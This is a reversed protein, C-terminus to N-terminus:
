LEGKLKEIQNKLAEAVIYDEREAAQEKQVELEAIKEKIKIKSFHKSSIKGVHNITGQKRIIMNRIESEFIKYCNACGVVGDRTVDFISSKCKPCIKEQGYGMQGDDDFVVRMNENFDLM